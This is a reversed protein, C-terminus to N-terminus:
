RARGCTTLRGPEGGKRWWNCGSGPRSISSTRSSTAPLADSRDHRRLESRDQPLRGPLDASLHPQLPRHWLRRHRHLRRPHLEAFLQDTTEDAVILERETLELVLKIPHGQLRQHLGPLGGGPESGQLSERQHQVRLFGRPLTEVLPAFAERVQTMLSRTMARHPRVGGGHPHLSGALDHGSSSAALADAGRLRELPCRGRDGGPQLYPIFEQQDLARKLEQVPPDPTGDALLGWGLLLGWCPISSLASRPTTGSTPAGYESLSVRTVVKFPYRTSAQELYGQSEEPILRDTLQNDRLLMQQGVVLGLPSNRSLMDLINCAPPLRRGWWCASSGAAERYVILPRNPTVPNSKMLDLRGGVYDDRSSAASRAVSPPATSPIVGPWTSAARGAGHGGMGSGQVVELCPKDLSGAPGVGGGPTTWPATSCSEPMSWGAGGCGTERRQRDALHRHGAGAGHAAPRGALRVAAQYLISAKKLRRFPM